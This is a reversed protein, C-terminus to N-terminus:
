RASRFFGQVAPAVYQAAAGPEGAKALSELVGCNFLSWNHWAKAWNAGYETASKLLGLCRQITPGDLGADHVHWQCLGLRLYARAHLQPKPRDQWRKLAGGPLHSLHAPVAAAAAALDPKIFPMPPESPAMSAIETVLDQLRGLAEQRSGTSWLHKVFALMVAPAGSGAGYGPTHPTTISRPDYRLLQVLMREAQRPRGSKRCLSAYKLWGEVDEHM